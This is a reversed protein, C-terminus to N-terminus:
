ERTVTDGRELRDVFERIAAIGSQRDISAAYQAIGDDGFVLLVFGTADSPLRAKTSRCLGKFLRSLEPETMDKMLKM